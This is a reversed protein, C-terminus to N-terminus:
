NSSDEEERVKPKATWLKWGNDKAEQETGSVLFGAQDVYFETKVAKGNVLKYM